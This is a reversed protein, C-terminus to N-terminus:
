SAILPVGVFGSPPTLRMTGKGVVVNDDMVVIDMERFMDERLLVEPLKALLSILNGYQLPQLRPPIGTVRIFFTTVKATIAFDTITLVRIREENAYQALTLLAFIIAMFMDKKSIEKTKYTLDAWLRDNNSTANLSLDGINIPITTKNDNVTSVAKSVQSVAYETRNAAFTTEITDPAFFKVHAVKVGLWLGVFQSTQFRNLNMIDRIAAAITYIAFRVIVVDGPNGVSIAVQPYEDMRWTKGSIEHNGYFNPLLALERMAFVCVMICPIDPLLPGGYDPYCEFEDNPFDPAIGITLNTATPAVLNVNTNTNTSILSPLTAANSLSSLCFLIHCYELCSRMLEHM